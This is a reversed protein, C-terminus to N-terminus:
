HQFHFALTARDRRRATRVRDANRQILFSALLLLGQEIERIEEDSPRGGKRRRSM